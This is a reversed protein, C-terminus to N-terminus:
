LGFCDKHKSSTKNIGCYESSSELFAGSIEVFSPSIWSCIGIIGDGISEMVDEVIIKVIDLISHSDFGHIHTVNYFDQNDGSKTWIELINLGCDQKLCFAIKCNDSIGCKHFNNAGPTLDTIKNSM